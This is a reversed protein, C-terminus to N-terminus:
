PNFTIKVHNLKYKKLEALERQAEKQFEKMANM